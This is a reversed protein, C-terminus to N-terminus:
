VKLSWLEREGNSEIADEDAEGDVDVFGGADTAADVEECLLACSSDTAPPGM